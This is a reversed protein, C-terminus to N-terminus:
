IDNFYFDFISTNETVSTTCKVIKAKKYFLQKVFTQNNHRKYHHLIEVKQALYQMFKTATLHFIIRLLFIFIYIINLSIFSTVKM